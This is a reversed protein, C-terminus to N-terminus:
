VFSLEACLFDTALSVASMVYDVGNDYGDEGEWYCVVYKGDEITEICGNWTQLLGMDNSWTHWIHQGLCLGNLLQHITTAQELTCKIEKVIGDVDFGVVKKLAKESRRKQAQQVKVNNKKIRSVIELHLARSYLVSRKKREPQLKVALNIVKRQGEPELSKLWKHVCNKSGKIKSSKYLITSHPAKTQIYSYLGVYRESAMNHVSATKTSEDYKKLQEVSYSLYLSYQSQLVSKVQDLMGKVYSVTCENDCDTWMADKEGIKEGFLDNTIDALTFEKNLLDDINSMVQKVLNFAGFHSLADTQTVYFRKMWVKSYMQSVISVAALQYQAVKSKFVSLLCKHFKTDKLCSNELYNIFERRHKSLSEANQLKVHLRNGRIRMLLGKSLREEKLFAIMGTPDGPGDKYRFTNFAMIVKEALCAGSFLQQMDEAVDTPLDEETKKLFTFLKRTVTELPHLNCFLKNLQKGWSKNVINITASNVVARDSMTNSINNVMQQHVDQKRLHGYLYVHIDALHTITTFIHEAYDMARGGALQEVDLLISETETTIHLTNFHVGEQTSADFCLTVNPTNYLAEAAMMDSLLGLEVANREVTTRQPAKETPFFEQMIGPISGTSTNGELLCYVRMRTQINYQKGEKNSTKEDEENTNVPDHPTLEDIKQEYFLEQSKIFKRASALEQRLEKQKCATYQKRRKTNREEKDQPACREQLKSIKTNKRSISEKLRKCQRSKVQKKLKKVDKKKLRITDQSETLSVRMRVCNGCSGRTPTLADSASSCVVTSTSSTSPSVCTSSAAATNSVASTSCAASTSSATANSSTSPTLTYKLNIKTACLLKYNEGGYKQHIRSVAKTYKAKCITVLSYAAKSDIDIFRNTFAKLTAMVKRNEAIYIRLIHGYTYNSLDDSLDFTDLYQAASPISNVEM